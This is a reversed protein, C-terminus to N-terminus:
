LEKLLRPRFSPSFSHNLLTLLKLLKLRFIAGPVNATCACAFSGTAPFRYLGFRGHRKRSQTLCAAAPPVLDFGPSGRLPPLRSCSGTPRSYHSFYCLLIINLAFTYVILM